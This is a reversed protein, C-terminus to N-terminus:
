NSIYHDVSRDVPWYLRGIDPLIFQHDEPLTLRQGVKIEGNKLNNADIITSASLGYHAAIKAVTDGHRVTYSDRLLNGSVNSIISFVSTNRGPPGSVPIILTSGPVLHDLHVLDNAVIIDAPRIDYKAAIDYLGEGAQVTHIITRTKLQNSLYIQYAENESIDFREALERIAESEIAEVPEVELSNTTNEIIHEVMQDRFFNDWFPRTAHWEIMNPVFITPILVVLIPRKLLSQIIWIAVIKFQKM